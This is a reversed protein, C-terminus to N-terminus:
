PSAEEYRALAGFSSGLGSHAAAFLPELEITKQYEAIAKDYLGMTYYTQGLGFHPAYDKPDAEAAKKLTEIADDKALAPNTLALAWFSLVLLFTIARKLMYVRM